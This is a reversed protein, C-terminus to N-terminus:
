ILIYSVHKSYQFVLSSIKEELHTNQISQSVMETSVGSDSDMMMDDDDIKLMQELM